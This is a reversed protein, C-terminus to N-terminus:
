PSRAAGFLLATNLQLLATDVLKECLELLPQLAGEQVILVKNELRASLKALSTAGLRKVAHDKVRQCVFQHM